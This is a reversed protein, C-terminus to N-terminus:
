GALLQNHLAQTVAGPATGLEDRLRCRAALVSGGVLVRLLRRMVVYAFFLLM